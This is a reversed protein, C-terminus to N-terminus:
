PPTSPHPSFACLQLQIVIFNLNFFRFFVFFFLCGVAKWILFDQTWLSVQGSTILIGKMAVSLFGVWVAYVFLHFKTAIASSGSSYVTCPSCTHQSIGRKLGPSSTPDVQVVMEFYSCTFGILSESKRPM